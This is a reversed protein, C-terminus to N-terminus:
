RFYSDPEPRFGKLFESCPMARRGEAQIHKIRIVGDGAAVILDEDFEV